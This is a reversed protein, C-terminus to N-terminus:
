MALLGASLAPLKEKRKQRQLLGKIPFSFGGEKTIPVDVSASRGDVNFEPAYQFNYDDSIYYGGSGDPEFNFKGLLSAVEKVPDTASAGYLRAYNSLTDGLSGLFGSQVFAPSEEKPPTIFDLAKGGEKAPPYDQYGVSSSGRKAANGIAQFMVDKAEPSMGSIADYNIKTEPLGLKAGAKYLLFPLANSPLPNFYEKEKKKDTKKKKRIKKTKKPAEKLKITEGAYIKNVDEIDNLEALKSVTTDHKKAIKGLTDGKKIRYTEGAM